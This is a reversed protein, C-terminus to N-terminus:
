FDESIEGLWKLFFTTCKKIDLLQECFRTLKQAQYNKQFIQLKNKNADNATHLGKTGLETGKM